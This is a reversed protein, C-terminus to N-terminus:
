KQIDGRSIFLIAYLVEQISPRTNKKSNGMMHVDNKHTVDLLALYQILLKRASPNKIKEQTEVVMPSNETLGEPTSVM